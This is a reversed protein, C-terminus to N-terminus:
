FHKTFSFNSRGFRQVEVASIENKIFPSLAYLNSIIGFNFVQHDKIVRFIDSDDSKGSKVSLYTFSNNKRHGIKGNMTKKLANVINKPDKEVDM